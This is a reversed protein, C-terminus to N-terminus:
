GAQPLPPSQREEVEEVLGRLRTLAKKELQRIREKTLNLIRGIQELTMPERGSLGFRLVLIKRERQDLADILESVERRLLYTTDPRPVAGSRDEIVDGVVLGPDDGVPADLLVLPRAANLVEAARRPALRMRALVETHGIARGKNQELQRETSYYHRVLEVVNAPM